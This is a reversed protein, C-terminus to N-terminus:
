GRKAAKMARRQKRNLPQKIFEGIKRSNEQTKMARDDIAKLKKNGRKM